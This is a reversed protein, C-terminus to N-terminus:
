NAPPPTWAVALSTKPVPIWFLCSGCGCATLSRDREHGVNGTLACETVVWHSLEFAAQMSFVSSCAQNKLKLSGLSKHPSLLAKHLPIWLFHLGDANQYISIWWFLLGYFPLFVSLNRLDTQGHLCYCMRNVTVVRESQSDCFHYM